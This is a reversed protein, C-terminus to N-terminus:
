YQPKCRLFLMVGSSIKDFIQHKFNKLFKVLTINPMIKSDGHVINLEAKFTTLNQPYLQNTPFPLKDFHPVRLISYATEENSAEVKNLM